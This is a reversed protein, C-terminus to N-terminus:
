RWVSSIGGVAITITMSRLPPLGYLTCFACVGCPQYITTVARFVGESYTNIKLVLPYSLTCTALLAHEPARMADNHTKTITSTCLCIAPLPIWCISSKLSCINFLIAHSHACFGPDGVFSFSVSYARDNHAIVNVWCLAVAVAIAVFLLQFMHRNMM